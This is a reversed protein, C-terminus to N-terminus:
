GGGGFQMRRVPQAAFALNLHMHLGAQLSDVFIHSSQRTLTPLLVFHWGLAVCIDLFMQEVANAEPVM